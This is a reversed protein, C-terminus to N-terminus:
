AVGFEDVNSSIVQATYKGKLDVGKTVFANKAIIVDMAAAIEEGTLDERIGSISLTAKDGSETTFIMELYKVLM